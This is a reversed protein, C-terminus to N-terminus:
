EIINIIIIIIIIIINIIIIIIIIIFIIIMAFNPRLVFQKKEKFIKFVLMLLDLYRLHIKLWLGYDRISHYDRGFDTQVLTAIYVFQDFARVAWLVSVRCWAVHNQRWVVHLTLLM